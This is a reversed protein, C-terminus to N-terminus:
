IMTIYVCYLAQHEVPTGFIVPIDGVGILADGHIGFNVCSESM